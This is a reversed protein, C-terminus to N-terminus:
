IIEFGKLFLGFHGSLWFGWVFVEFRMRFRLIGLKLLDSIELFSVTLM